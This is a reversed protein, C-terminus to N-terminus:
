FVILNTRLCFLGASLRPKIMQFLHDVKAIGNKLVMLNQTGIAM